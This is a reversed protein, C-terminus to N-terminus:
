LVFHIPSENKNGDFDDWFFQTWYLSFIYIKFEFYAEETNQIRTKLTYVLSGEATTIKSFFITPERQGLSCM